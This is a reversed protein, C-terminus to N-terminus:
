RIPFDFYTEPFPEQRLAFHWWEKSYNDFGHSSMLSVLFARNNKAEASINFNNTHAKEDLCDFGTGMEISNDNFRQGKPLRGDIVSHGPQYQDQQPM